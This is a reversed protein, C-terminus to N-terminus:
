KHNGRGAGLFKMNILIDVMHHGEVPRHNGIEHKDVEYIFIPM